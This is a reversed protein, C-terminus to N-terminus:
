NCLFIKCVVTGFHSTLIITPDYDIPILPVVFTSVKRFAYVFGHLPQGNKDFPGEKEVPFISTNYPSFGKLIRKKKKKKKKIVPKIGKLQARSM